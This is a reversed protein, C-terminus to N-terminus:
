PITLTEFDVGFMIHILAFQILNIVFLLSLILLEELLSKVPRSYVLRGIIIVLIFIIPNPFM